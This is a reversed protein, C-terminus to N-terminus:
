ESRSRIIALCREIAPEFLDQFLRMARRDRPRLYFMIAIRGVLDGQRRWLYVDWDNSGAERWVGEPLPVEGSARYVDAYFRLAGRHLRELYVGVRPEPKASRRAFALELFVPHAKVAHARARDLEESCRLAWDVSGVEALSNDARATATLIIAALVMLRASAVPM